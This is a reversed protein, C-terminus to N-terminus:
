KEFVDPDQYKKKYFLVFCFDKFFFQGGGWINFVACLLYFEAM